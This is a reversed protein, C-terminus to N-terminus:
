PPLLEGTVDAVFADIKAEIAAADGLPALCDGKDEARAFGESFHSEANALCAPNLPLGYRFAKGHCLLKRDAKQGADHLKDATCRSPSLTQVLEGVVDAILADVKAEIVAADGVPALCDGFSEADAFRADFRIEEQSLCSPDPPLVGVEVAQGYCDLKRRAKDGTAMLKEPSCRTPTVPRLEMAADAVFADIKAEIAAADGTTLCDDLAEADAFKESFKTEEVSLCLPDVVLGKSTAKKHCKLKKFAKKGAAGQNPAM